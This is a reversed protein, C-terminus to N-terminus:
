QPPTDTAGLSVGPGRGTGQPHHAAHCRSAALPGQPSQAGQLPLAAERSGVGRHSPALIRGM